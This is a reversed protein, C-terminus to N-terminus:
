TKSIENKETLFSTSADLAFFPQKLKKLNYNSILFYRYLFHFRTFSAVGLCQVIPICSSRACQDFFMRYQSLIRGCKQHSECKTNM